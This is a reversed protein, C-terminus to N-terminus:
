SVQLTAVDYWYKLDKFIKSPFSFTTAFRHWIFPPLPPAIVSVPPVRRPTSPPCRLVGRGFPRHPRQPHLRLFSEFPLVPGIVYLCVPTFNPGFTRPSTWSGGDMNEKTSGKKNCFTQIRSYVCGHTCRNVVIDRVHPFFLCHSTSHAHTNHVCLVGMEIGEATGRTVARKPRLMWVLDWHFDLSTRKPTRELFPRFGKVFWIVKTVLSGWEM